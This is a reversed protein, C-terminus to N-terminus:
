GASPFNERNEQWWREWLASEAPLKKGTLRILHRHAKERTEVDGSALAQLLIDVAARPDAAAGAGQGGTAAEVAGGAGTSAARLAGLLMGMHTRMKALEATLIAGVLCILVLGMRSVMSTTASLDTGLADKKFAFWGAFFVLALQVLAIALVRVVPSM